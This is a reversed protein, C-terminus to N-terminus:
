AVLQVDLQVSRSLGIENLLDIFMETNSEPEFLQRRKEQLAMITQVSTMRGLKSNEYKRIQEDKNM